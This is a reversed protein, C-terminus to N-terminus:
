LYFEMWDAAVVGEGVAVNGGLVGFSEDFLVNEHATTTHLRSNWRTLTTYHNAHAVVM